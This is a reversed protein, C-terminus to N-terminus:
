WWTGIQFHGCEGAPHYISLLIQTGAPLPGPIVNDDYPAFCGLHDSDDCTDGHGVYVNMVLSEMGPSHPELYIHFEPLDDPLTYVLFLDQQTGDQVGGCSASTFGSASYQCLNYARFDSSPAPDPNDCTDGPPIMCVGGSCIEGGGCANGCAGCHRTNSMFNWYGLCVPTGDQDCCVGGWEDDCEPECGTGTREFCTNGTCAETAACANGCAGCNAEDSELRVCQGSCITDHCMCEYWIGNGTCQEAGPCTVGCDGCHENSSLNVCAGDCTAGPWHPCACHGQHCAEDTVCRQGCGGCHEPNSLFANETVCEPDFGTVACCVEASECGPVCAGANEVQCTGAVCREGAECPHDCDGCHDEDNVVDRCVGGCLAHGPSCFCEGWICQEHAGCTVSACPDDGSTCHGWECWEDPACAIGCAGCHNPDGWHLFGPVWWCSGECCVHDDWCPGGCPDNDIMVCHGNICTEGPACAVGCAGCNAEDTEVNACVDECQLNPYNRPCDCVFTMGVQNCMLDGCDNGCAGCNADDRPNICVGGCRIQTWHNCPILCTGTIFNVEYGPYCSDCHEGTYGIACTCVPLGSTDVCTGHDGCYGVTCAVDAVCANEANRHYGGACSECAAGMYGTNCACVVVGSTASCTGAGSCSNALCQLDLVCAGSGDDHYGPLCLECLQGGYGIECGCVPLGSMDECTGHDGCYGDTCSLDVVCANEINRHYGGACSECATATYGTDCTCVVVGLLVDCTGAGSCSNALCQQDLVCDGNGDDHCGPYCAGCTLGTYGAACTCVPLGSTDVCTGHDGCYGATCAVDAVCANEANRHYGGACSECAAGLYGTDCACAVVGSSDDCTGAGSCTNALCQQDLVCAGSGDDHYGPYCADCTLGFFGTECICVALGEQVACTGHIGCSTNDECPNYNNLNNEKKLDADDCSWLTGLWLLGLFFVLSHRCRKM